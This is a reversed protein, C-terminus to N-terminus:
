QICESLTKLMDKIKLPKAIHANMGVQLAKKVDSAMVNATMAIVPLNQLQPNERICQTATYGDMVPMQIDMLVADFPETTLSSQITDLAEQGNIVTSVIMGYNSLIKKAIILNVDNDDVLLINKNQLMPYDIEPQTIKEPAKNLVQPITEQIQDQYEFTATFHFSSGQNIRSEVWINGQMLQCLQQSISLGLGTGGYKRTTSSDAQSYTQFLRQQHENSLGIGTDTIIFHLTIFEATKHFIRVKATIKGRETFKVANNILNLLIQNLRLPDGSLEDPIDDAIDILFKLKDQNITLSTQTHIHNFLEKVDFAINELHLKGAEIKSVDLIDDILSLLSTSSKNLTSIFGKQEDDLQTEELLHAMGVVANMPTRIEHSMNALFEDKSKNASEAYDRAKELSKEIKKREAIEFLLRRNSRIIFLIILGVVGAVPAMWLLFTTISTGLNVQLALWNNAISARHKSEITDLTKNLIPVLPELGKRVGISLELKYPTSAAIKIQSFNNRNIEHTIVALNHVFADLKGKNIENLAEYASSYTRLKLAPHNSHLLEEIFNDKIVGVRLQAADDLNQIFFGDKRTAIVVPFSIYPKTFNIFKSRQPTKVIAPLLDIEKRKIKQILEGWSYNSQTQVQINLKSTILEIYESSIGSFKNKEIFEFPPSSQDVGLKFNSNNKLWNQQEKSLSAVETSILNQIYTTEEPIWKRELELLKSAPIRNIGSNIIEILEPNGKPILASVENTSIKEKSLTLAGKLGMRSLQANFYPIENIVAIIKGDLLSNIIMQDDTFLVLELEPYNKQLFSAQFSGQQVAIKQGNLESLLPPVKVKGNFFIGTSVQHFPESFDAWTSREKSFFLGAHFDVKHNKLDEMNQLFPTPKFTVPIGNTESWLKWFEVYLGTPTGDPLLMSFPPNRDMISIKLPAVEKSQEREPETSAALQNTWLISLLILFFKIIRITNLKYYVPNTTM